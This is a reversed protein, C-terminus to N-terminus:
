RNWLSIPLIVHYFYTLPSQLTLISNFICHPNYSYWLSFNSINPLTKFSGYVLQTRCSIIHLQSLNNVLEGPLFMRQNKKNTGLSTHTCFLFDSSVYSLGKRLFQFEQIWDLSQFTPFAPTPFSNPCYISQTRMVQLCPGLFSCFIGWLFFFM